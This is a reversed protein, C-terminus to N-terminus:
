PQMEETLYRDFITKVAALAREAHAPDRDHSQPLAVVESVLPDCISCRYRLIGDRIAHVLRGEETGIAATMHRINEWNITWPGSSRQAWVSWEFHTAGGVRLREGVLGRCPDLIPELVCDRLERLATIMQNHQYFLEYQRLRYYARYSSWLRAPVPGRGLISGNEMTLRNLIDVCGCEAQGGLAREFALATMDHDLTRLREGDWAIKHTADGCAVKVTVPKCRARCGNIEPNHTPLSMALM